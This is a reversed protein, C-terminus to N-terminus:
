RSVRDLTDHKSCLTVREYDIIKTLSCQAV